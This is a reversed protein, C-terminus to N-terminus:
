DSSREAANHILKNTFTRWEKDKGEKCKKISTPYVNKEIEYM